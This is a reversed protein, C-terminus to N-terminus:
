RCIKKENEEGIEGCGFGIGGNRTEYEKFVNVLREEAVARAASKLKDTTVNELESAADIIAIVVANKIEGGTLKLRALEGFDIQEKPAVEPLLAEWIARRTEENPPTFGVKFLLRRNIAPDLHTEFNTTFITVANSREMYQLLANVQSVEWNHEAQTRQSLLSDAEDFLIMCGNEDAYDFVSAIAKETDGVYKNLLKSHEVMLLPLELQKALYKAAQTKGTGSPGYFLFCMSRSELVDKLGYMDFLTERDRIARQIRDVKDREKPELVLPVACEPKFLVGPPEAAEKKQPSKRAQDRLRAMADEARTKGEPEATSVKFDIADEFEQKLEKGMHVLHVTSREEDFRAFRSRVEKILALRTGNEMDFHVKFHQIQVDNYKSVEATILAVIKKKIERLKIYSFKAYEESLLCDFTEYVGDGDSDTMVGISKGELMDRMLDQELPDEILVFYHKRMM